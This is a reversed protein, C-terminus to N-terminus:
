DNNKGLVIALCADSREWDQIQTRYDMSRTNGVLWGEFFAARVELDMENEMDDLRALLYDLEEVTLRIFPKAKGKMVQAVSGAVVLPKRNKIEKIQSDM